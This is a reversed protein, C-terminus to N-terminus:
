RHSVTSLQIHGAGDIGGSLDSWEILGVDPSPHGGSPRIGLLRQAWGANGVLVGTVHLTGPHAQSGELRARIEHVRGITEGGRRLAPAALLTSVRLTAREVEDVWRASAHHATGFGIEGRTTSIRLAGPDIAQVLEWPIRRVVDPTLAATVGVLRRPVRWRWAGAGVLLASVRTDRGPGGELEIDDVRGFRREEVDLLQDDLIRLCLNIEDSEM